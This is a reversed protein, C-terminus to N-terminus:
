TYHNSVFNCIRDACQYPHDTNACIQHQHSSYIKDMCLNYKEFSPLGEFSGISSCVFRACERSNKKDACIKSDMVDNRCDGNLWNSDLWENNGLWGDGYYDGPKVMRGNESQINDHGFNDRPKRVILITIIIFIGIFLLLAIMEEKM